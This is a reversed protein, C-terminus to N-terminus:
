HSIQSLLAPHCVPIGLSIYFTCANVGGRKTRIVIKEKLHCFLKSGGPLTWVLLGGYPMKTITVDDVINEDIDAGSYSIVLSRMEDCFIGLSSMLCLRGTKHNCNISDDFLVHIEWKFNDKNEPVAQDRDVDFVSVLLARMEEATEHWMTACALVTPRGPTKIKM